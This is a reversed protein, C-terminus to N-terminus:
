FVHSLIVQLVLLSHGLGLLGHVLFVRLRNFGEDRWAFHHVAVM